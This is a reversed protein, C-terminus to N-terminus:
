RNCSSCYVLQLLRPVSAVDVAARRSHCSYGIAIGSTSLVDVEACERRSRCALKPVRGCYVLSKKERTYQLAAAHVAAGGCYADIPQLKLGEM